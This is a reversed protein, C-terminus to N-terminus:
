NGKNASEHGSEQGAEVVRTLPGSRKAGSGSGYSYADFWILIDSVGSTTATGEIFKTIAGEPDTPSLSSGPIILMWKDNVISRGALSTSKYLEEGYLVNPNFKIPLYRRINTFAQPGNLTPNWDRALWEGDNLDFPEVVQPVVTFRREISLNLPHRLVDQGAPVLYCSLAPGFNAQVWGNVYVASQLIKTSFRGPLFVHDYAV